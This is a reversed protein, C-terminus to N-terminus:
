PQGGDAGGGAARWGPGLLGDLASRDATSLIADLRAWGDPDGLTGLRYLLGPLRPRGVLEAAFRDRHEEPRIGLARVGPPGILLRLPSPPTQLVPAVALPTATPRATLFGVLPMGTALERLAVDARDLLAGFGPVTPLGLDARVRTLEEVGERTRRVTITAVLRAGSAVLAVDSPMRSRAFSTLAARDWRTVAPEHAGWGTIPCGLAEALREVPDGLSVPRTVRHRTSLVAELEVATAPAPTLFARSVDDPDRVPTADLADPVTALRRGSMGDRLGAPERVVWRGGAARWAEDFAPTLVSTGDTVLIPRDGRADAVALLNAVAPSLGIVPARSEIHLWGDGGADVLPHPAVAPIERTM